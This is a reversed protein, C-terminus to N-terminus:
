LYYQYGSYHKTVIIFIKKFSAKKYVALMLCFYSRKYHEGIDPNGSSNDIIGSWAYFEPFTHGQFNFVLQRFRHVQCGKFFQQGLELEQLFQSVAVM